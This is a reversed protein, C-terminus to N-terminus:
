SFHHEKQVPSSVKEYKSLDSERVQDFASAIKDDTLAPSEPEEMVQTTEQYIEESIPGDEVKGEEEEEETKLNESAEETQSFEDAPRDDTRVMEEPLDDYLLHSHQEESM